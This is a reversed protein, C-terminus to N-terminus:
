REDISVAYCLAVGQLMLTVGAAERLLLSDGAALEMTLEPGALSLRGEHCLLLFTHGSVTMESLGATQVRKVAHTLRDRRTMVNLDTIAGDPLTASVPVDAAFPLPDSTKTLLMPERGDITLSMGNGELISLTRDIGSFSSFPGDTSVTAMSIRWSFDSLLAGEPSVAIEVTEGGGNKWPMRRYSSAKLLNAEPM